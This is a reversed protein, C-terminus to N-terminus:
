VRQTDRRYAGAALAALVVSWVAVIGWGFLSWAHGVLVVHSAQVLWYSPLFRAIQYLVGHGLPFWTGSIFALLGTLGGVLPGVSDVSLLHGLFIGLAAFPILAVLMLGTMELWDTASMRVGLIAGAAYLLLITLLAMFYAMVVKTSIYARPSLPTLRLQRTWGVQRENAIRAGASLASVMTGFGALGVMYYLPASIGSNAFDAVNRNPGAILFYLVLPFGLSFFFFRRSRLARLIEFRLYTSSSPRGGARPQVLTSM